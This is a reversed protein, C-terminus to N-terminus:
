LNTELNKRSIRMDRLIKTLLDRGITEGAHSPVAGRQDVTRIVCTITAERVRIEVFGLRSLADILQKVTYPM